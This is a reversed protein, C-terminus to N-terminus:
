AGTSPSQQKPTVAAILSIMRMLCRREKKVHLLTTLSSMVSLDDVAPEREVQYTVKFCYVCSCCSLLAIFANVLCFPLIPPGMCM